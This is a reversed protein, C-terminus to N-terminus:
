SKGAMAMKGIGEAAFEAASGGFDPSIGAKAAKAFHALIQFDSKERRAVMREDSARQASFARCCKLEFCFPRKHICRFAHHTIPIQSFAPDFNLHVALFDGNATVFARLLRRFCRFFVGDGSALLNGLSFFADELNAFGEAFVLRLSRM